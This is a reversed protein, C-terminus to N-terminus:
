PLCIGILPDVNVAPDSVSVLMDEYYRWWCLAVWLYAGLLFWCGLEAVRQRRHILLIVSSGAILVTKYVVLAEPSGGMLSAAVPNLEVFDRRLSELLTYGLDFTNIVWVAALLLLVRRPRVLWRFSRGLAPGLRGPRACETRASPATVYPLDSLNV